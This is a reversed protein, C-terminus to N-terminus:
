CRGAGIYLMRVCAIVMAAVGKSKECFLNEWDRDFACKLMNEGIKSSVAVDWNATDPEHSATPYARPISGKMGRM